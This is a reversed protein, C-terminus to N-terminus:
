ALTHSAVVGNDLGLTTEKSYRFCFTDFLTEVEGDSEVSCATGKQKKGLVVAQHPESCPVGTARERADFRLCTGRTWTSVDNEDRTKNGAVILAAIALALVYIGPRFFVPRGPSEPSRFSPPDMKRLASLHITNRAIVGINEMASIFGTWGTMITRNMFRRGVSRGCDRCALGVWSKQRRILLLGINQKFSVDLAPAAGCVSCTDGPQPM